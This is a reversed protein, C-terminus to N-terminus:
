SGLESRITECRQNVAASYDQTYQVVKELIKDIIAECKRILSDNIDYCHILVMNLRIQQPLNERIEVIKQEYFHIKDQLQERTHKDTEGLYM